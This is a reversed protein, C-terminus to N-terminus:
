VDSMWGADRCMKLLPQLVRSGQLTATHGILILKRKARTLTVNLRRVDNLLEGTNGGQAGEEERYVEAMTSSSGSCRQYNARTFSVLIVDKDRGQSQDATLLEIADLRRLQQGDGCKDLLSRLLKLQQRYPTVVAIQDPRCGGQVLLSAIRLVVEAEFQNTVLEGHKSEGVEELRRKSTDLFRVKAEPRLLDCLWKDEGAGRKAAEVNGLMLTQDRVRENGARLQGHYVMENSLRMIDDNMRYQSRLAVTARDGHRESLLKFLSIDLGGKKAQANKVLPPLQHHDGVLVFKDAFRLPGLCTPLPIQSAEDVICYDFLYTFPEEGGDGATTRSRMRRALGSSFLTHHVSLCTAAVVNPSEFADKLENLTGCRPLLFQHADPHVKDKSGLRLIRLPSDVRKSEDESLRRLITDVASHTYSTLLIRKGLKVLLEILKAIITTKGTGPMGLVLAYDQTTLVKDIVVKQDQNLSPDARAREIIQEAPEQDSSTSFNKQLQEPQLFRPARLDVVLERRKVDGGRGPALFLAALNARIRGMGSSLEDKDIRFVIREAASAVDFPEIHANANTNVLARQMAAELSHDLGIEICTPTLNSVFGQAVSLMHPEISVTVPDNITIHGSLLGAEASQTPDQHRVFRHVVRRMSGSAEPLCSEHLIDLRMKGFCRGVRERQEATMTWMERRLRVADEEELNLLRDWKRFFELHVDTLHGTKQEFIDAIPTRKSLIRGSKPASIGEIDELKVESPEVVNEVARRFLMCGDIAYCRRCKHESDITPPLVPLPAESATMVLEDNRLRSSDLRLYHALENRGIILSRVENRSFRIRHLEGSKSYYLLGDNVRVGYRDSMMLTYMMTQARHETSVFEARGTKLELPVVSTTIRRQSQERSTNTRTGRVFAQGHQASTTMPAPPESEEFIDCEVSVDIKGKLGFIPSWIEEEVDLIRRLRVKALPAAHSHGSDRLTAEPHFTADEGQLLFTRAFHAFPAAKERLQMAADDTSLEIAYLSEINARVQKEVQQEVFTRSFNGIGQWQDPWPSVSPLTDLPGEPENTEITDFNQVSPSATLCAQLLEHLMNGMVLSLTVDSAGRLRDQVVPKRICSAVDAVKTASVLVDPHVVLLNDLAHDVSNSNKASTSRSALIMIKARPAVDSALLEQTACQSLSPMSALDDWLDDDEDQVDSANLPQTQEVCPQEIVMKVQPEDKSGQYYQDLSRPVTSPEIEFHGVLHVVSGVSVLTQLWDDRLAALLVETENGPPDSGTGSKSPSTQNINVSQKDPELVLIKEPLLRKSPGASDVSLQYSSDVVASIRARTYTCRERAQVNTRASTPKSASTTSTDPISVPITPSVSHETKQRKIDSASVARQTSSTSTASPQKLRDEGDFNILQSQSLTLDKLPSRVLKSAPNPSASKRYSSPKRQQSLPPSYTPKKRPPSQSPPISFHSADLDAFLEDMFRADAADFTM